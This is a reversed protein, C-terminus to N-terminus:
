SFRKTVTNTPGFTRHLIGFSVLADEVDCSLGVGRFSDALSEFVYLIATRAWCAFNELCEPTGPRYRALPWGNVREFTTVRYANSCYWEVFM